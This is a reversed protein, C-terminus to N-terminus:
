KRGRRPNTSSVATTEGRVGREVLNRRHYYARASRQKRIQNLKSGAKIWPPSKPGERVSDGGHSEAGVDPSGLNEGCHLFFKPPPSHACSPASLFAFTGAGCFNRVSLGGGPDAPIGFLKRASRECVKSLLLHPCSRFFQHFPLM